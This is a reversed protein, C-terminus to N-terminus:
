SLGLKPRVWAGLRAIAEDAEPARGALFHFVHQMEPVVELTVDVGAARAKDVFRNSDDLLTEHDGVQVFMPPLGTPDAYLPNALADTASGTGLFMGAMGLLIERQVLVDTGARSDLTAGKAEMDYWPSLPMVAAPLEDGDDRLKLVMSTCLGGGASDGTTAIHGAEVGRSRLWRYVAVADENPAPHPHEPALRYDIVLARAGAARALHGAVKRHTHRSGVVYGGGHCWILVRDAASGEPICWMAPVGGADVEEYSVGTPEVTPLHWEEFLDRLTDLDMEPQAAMRSAWSAYLDKLYASQTSAM